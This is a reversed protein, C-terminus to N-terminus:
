SEAAEGAAPDWEVRERRRGKEGAHRPVPLYGGTHVGGGRETPRPLLTVPALQDTTGALVGGLWPLVFVVRGDKTKPVILGCTKPAFHAPLVVHTGGAPTMIEEREVDVMRRVFDTFPGTANVVARARVAFPASGPKRSDRVMAGVVRKPRSKAVLSKKRDM